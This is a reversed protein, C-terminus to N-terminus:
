LFWPLDNLLPQDALMRTVGADVSALRAVQDALLRAYRLSVPQTVANFARWNLSSLALAEAVTDQMRANATSSCYDRHLELTTPKRNRWALPERRGETVLLAHDSDLLVTTGEAAVFGPHALDYVAFEPETSLRVVEFPVPVSVRREYEVVADRVANQVRRQELQSVHVSVKAVLQHQALSRDLASTLGVGLMRVFQDLNDSPPFFSTNVYIGSSLTCVAYGILRRSTPSARDGIEARGIGLVLTPSATPIDIGWPAGGLKVFFALAINNLAFPFQGPADMLERSVFQSPVGRRLLALKAGIYPDHNGDAAFKSGIIFAFDPASQRAALASETAAEFSGAKGVSSSTSVRVAEVSSSELSLGVLRKCGPFSGIGNRLTLYLRNAYDRDSEDFVFLCVPQESRAPKLPGHRILGRMKDTALARKGGVSYTYAPRGLHIVAPYIGERM